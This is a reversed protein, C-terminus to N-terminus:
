NSQVQIPRAESTDSLTELEPMEREPQLTSPQSGGYRPKLEGWEFTSHSRLLFNLIKINIFNSYFFLVFCVFAFYIQSM